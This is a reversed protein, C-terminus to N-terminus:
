KGDCELTSETAESSEVFEAVARYVLLGKACEDWDDMAVVVAVNGFFGENADM